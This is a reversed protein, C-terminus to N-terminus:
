QKHNEQLVENAWCCAERHIEWITEESLARVAAISSVEEWAGRECHIALHLLNGLSSDAGRLADKCVDTLPLQSIVMEMPRDLIADILSLIGIMFAESSDEGSLAALAECVRARSLANSILEGPRDDSISIAVVISIWKRIERQGLLSLAHRISRVPFLGFAASNLYRLL